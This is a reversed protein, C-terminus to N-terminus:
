SRDRLVTVEASAETGPGRPFLSEVDVTGHVRATFLGEGRGIAKYTFRFSQVENAELVSDPEDGTADGQFFVYVDAVDTSRPVLPSSAGGGERFVLLPSGTAVITAVAPETSTLHLAWDTLRLPGNTVTVSFSGQQVPELNGTVRDVVVGVSHLYDSTLRPLDALQFSSIPPLPDAITASESQEFVRTSM